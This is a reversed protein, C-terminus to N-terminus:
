FDVVEQGKLGLFDRVQEPSAPERGAVEWALRTIREVHEANSEALVGRELYLNDELGVRANGGMAAAQTGFPFQM